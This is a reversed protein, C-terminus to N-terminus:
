FLAEIVSKHWSQILSQSELQHAAQNTISQYV